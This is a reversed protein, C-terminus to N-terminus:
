KPDLKQSKVDELNKEWRVAEEEPDTAEEEQEEVESPQHSGLRPGQSDEGGVAVSGLHGRRTGHNLYM